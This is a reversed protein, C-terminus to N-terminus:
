GGALLPAIHREYIRPWLFDRLIRSRFAFRRSRSIGDSVATAVEQPASGARFYTVDALGIERLPEIDTCIVPVGALGAELLPIGFGEEKSTLLLADAVRYLDSIVDDPLTRGTSPTLFLAHSELGLEARLAMLREMYAANQQSHPGAPGTILLCAEPYQAMLLSLARLALEIDKRPTVRVPLLLIPSRDLVHYDRLLQQTLDGLNLFELADIGNPVVKIRELQTELLEALQQRRKESVTVQVAGPWDTRLLNWPDGDHLEAAYQPSLWAIDHHWLVLRPGRGGDHMRRLAATLALNKNLSCVNHAILLDAKACIRALQNMIESVLHEFTTPVVGANLARQVDMIEAGRSDALPFEIFHVLSDVQRGRGAVVSVRHGAEAMLRSHQRMVNEVGGVIPRAAYHLLLVNTM